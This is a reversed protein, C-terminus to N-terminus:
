DSCNTGSGCKFNLVTCQSGTKPNPDICSCNSCYAGECNYNIKGDPDYIGGSNGGHIELAEMESLLEASVIAMNENKLKAM